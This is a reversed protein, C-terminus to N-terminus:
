KRDHQSVNRELKRGTFTSLFGGGGGGAGGEGGGGVGEHRRGRRDQENGRKSWGRRGM